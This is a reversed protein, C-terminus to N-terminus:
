ANVSGYAVHKQVFCGLNHFCTTDLKEFLDYIMRFGNRHLLCFFM